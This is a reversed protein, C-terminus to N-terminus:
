NSLSVTGDSCVVEAAPVDTNWDHWFKINQWQAMTGTYTMSTLKECNDFAYYLIETVSHPITVSELSTCSEFVRDHINTVGDPITVSKLSYCHAFASSSLIKVGKPITISELKHCGYFAFSDISTVSDPIIVSVLSECHAFETEAITSVGDPITISTLSKCAQFAGSFSKVSGPVTYAGKFGCPMKILETKDKNFLVGKEDSSYATNNESVWIGTLSSCGYFPSHDGFKTVSAPITISTLNVCGDFASEDISTVGESIIVSVLGDCIAFARMGISKVSGPITINTLGDCSQFARVGIAIVGKPIIISVLDKCGDFADDGITTVPIGNYVNPIVLYTDKCTGMGSVIYYGGDGLTFELGESPQPEGCQSCKKNEWSHGNAEGETAGCTKCTKPDMCTAALWSHTYPPDTPPDTHASTPTTTPDNENTAPVLLLFVCVVLLASLIVAIWPVYKKM